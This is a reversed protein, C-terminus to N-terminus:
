QKGETKQKKNEQGARRFQNGHSDDVPDKDRHESRTEANRRKKAAEKRLRSVEAKQEPTMGHYEEKSYSRAEIKGKFTGPKAEVWKDDTGGRGRGRGGAGRSNRGGRGGRRGGRTDRGGGELAAIRRKRISDQKRCVTDSQYVRLIQQQVKTYTNFTTSNMACMEKVTKLTDDGIGSLFLEIKRWEVLDEGTEKLTNFARTFKKIYTDLDFNKKPSDYFTNHIVGWAMRAKNEDRNAQVSQEMLALYAERGNEKGKARPGEKKVDWKSIFTWADGNLLLRKMLEWVTKNDADSEPGELRACWIYREDETEYDGEFDKITM